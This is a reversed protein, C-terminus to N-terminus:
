SFIHLDCQISGYGRKASGDGHLNLLRATGICQAHANMREAITLEPATASQIPSIVQGVGKYFNMQPFQFVDSPQLLRGPDNLRASNMLDQIDRDNEGAYSYKSPDQYDRGARQLAGLNMTWPRITPAVWLTDNLKLDPWQNIIPMVEVMMCINMKQNATYMQSNKADDVLNDTLAGVLTFENLLKLNFLNMNEAMEAHIDRLANDNPARAIDDQKLRVMLRFFDLAANFFYANLQAANVVMSTNHRSPNSSVGKFMWVLDGRALARFNRLEQPKFESPQIFKSYDNAIITDVDPANQDSPYWPQFPVLFYDHEIRSSTFTDLGSQTNRAEATSALGFNLAPGINSM